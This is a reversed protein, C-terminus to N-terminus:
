EFVKLTAPVNMRRLRRITLLPAAAVALVGLVFTILLTSPSIVAPIYLDPMTDPIRTTLLIRLLVWGLVTGVITAVLGILLNEVVAMRIIRRLPVGFAFMTAYERAREDANINATNFAILLALVLMAGEIVRLVVVFEGLLDDIVEATEAVGSVSSVGNLEFLGRKMDDRTVGDKPSAIVLNTLGAMNFMAAQNMDMYAVFRFPHPHLGLVAVETTQLSVGSAGLVPHELSVSDGVGVGLNRAALESLYIGPSTRSVEGRTITPTWMDSDLPLLDIQVPFKTVGRSVTGGVRLDAEAQDVVPAAAIAGVEAGAVPYFSDLPVEVREPNRSLVEHSGRDITAVFSDIMGVFAVLAALAAAIGLVTLLSRRPSRVVNRLPMRAFTDGPLRVRAFAPALGGGRVSRYGAQIAQIPPVRVARWVPWLTAAFPLLFGGVAVLVFVEPVFGTDWHPLPMLDVLVSAVAQGLLLGVLIGFAVGLLAIEAAVLLPRLAIRVPSVGLVMSLGIERRQSEVIRAILNFAAVIAGAFLLIAFVDYTQQDGKIDADNLHFAPDEERTVVTAGLEPIRAKLQAELAAKAAERQFGPELTLVLDNVEGTRGSLEQVTEISSFLAAFNAEALMGGRDTTVIFYEPTLAQGVYEVSQGGSLRITGSEALEYHKAFHGEVMVVPKGADESTLGRGGMAFLQNVQPGDGSLGLGYIRGPVLIAQSGASADVQVDVVLREEAQALGPLGEVAALLEGSKASASEALQVKLDFMALTRYGDDTSARRWRTVSSLGAYSGTGLAIVLAIAAVQLWRARLDRGSWRLVLWIPRRRGTSTASM